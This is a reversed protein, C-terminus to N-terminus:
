SLCNVPLYVDSEWFQFFRTISADWTVVATFHPENGWSTARLTWTHGMEKEVLTLASKVGCLLCKALSCAEKDLLAANCSFTSGISDTCFVNFLHGRLQSSWMSDCELLGIHDDCQIVFYIGPLDSANTHSYCTHTKGNSTTYWPLWQM